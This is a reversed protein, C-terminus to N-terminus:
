KPDVRRLRGEKLLHKIRSNRTLRLRIVAGVLACCGLCVAGTMIWLSRSEFYLSAVNLGMGLPGFVELLTLLAGEREDDRIVRDYDRM